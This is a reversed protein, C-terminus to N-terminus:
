VDSKTPWDSTNLNGPIYGVSMWGHRELGRTSELFGNLGGGNTVTDSSEVQYVVNSNDNRM